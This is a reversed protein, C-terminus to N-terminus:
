ATLYFQHEPGFVHKQPPGFIQRLTVLFKGLSMDFLDAEDSREFAYRDLDIQGVFRGYDHRPWFGFSGGKRQMMSLIYRDPKDPKADDGFSSIVSGSVGISLVAQAWKSYTWCTM